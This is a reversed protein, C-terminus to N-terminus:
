GNGIGLFFYDFTNELTENAMWPYTKALYEKIDDSRTIVDAKNAFKQSRFYDNLDDNIQRAEDYLEALEYQSVNPLAEQLIPVPIVEFHHIIGINFVMNLFINHSNLVVKKPIQKAQEETIVGDALAKEVNTELIIQTQPRIIGRKIQIMFLIMFIVSLVALAIALYSISKNHFNFNGIYLIIALFILIRSIFSFDVRPLKM